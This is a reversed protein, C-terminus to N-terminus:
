TSANARAFPSTTNPWKGIAKLQKIWRPANKKASMAAYDIQRDLYPQKRTFLIYILRIMKHAIAIIAKKHSKRVMLSRYKAALTSKTMRAANACECLIYRIVNNGHRTRGSKRKGASENNGPCLAAWSALREPSGFRAMDDGIEILILTAAIEDIGPITQLLAHAWAYPQMADLLYADLQALEQDLGGLHDHIHKLVFLHRASLDGELSAALVENKRRLVGRAHALLTDVSEGHILGNVMERASVGNIDSVVAGLKIGADDLVKHLRNLESARMGNLKRRYRSVLRLERLDQPPIFSARVLEFRALVALWESDTIDTKRGPVHKIFHANVVWANVGARELHAYLSKWYIGTSEMVVLEVKLEVLWAALARCDRKFGGFERSSRSMSGDPQEVLVTVAHLMRHVDIGAVRRHIPSLGEM